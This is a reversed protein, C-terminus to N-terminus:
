ARHWTTRQGLRQAKLGKSEGETAAGKRGDQVLQRESPVTTNANDHGRQRLHLLSCAQQHATLLHPAHCQLCTWSHCYVVTWPSRRFIGKALSCAVYGHCVSLWNVAIWPVKGTAECQTKLMDAFKRRCSLLMWLGAADALHTMALGKVNTLGM